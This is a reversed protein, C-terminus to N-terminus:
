MSRALIWPFPTTPTPGYRFYLTFEILRPLRKKELGANFEVTQPNISTRLYSFITIHRVGDFIEVRSHECLDLRPGRFSKRVVRPNCFEQHPVARIKLKGM